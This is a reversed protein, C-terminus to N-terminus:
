DGRPRALSSAQQLSTRYWEVTARLGQEFSVLPEYGLLRRALTIDALSERVDGPRPAAYGPAGKQGFIKDLLAITQNLTSSEGTGVNIVRGAAQPAKLARLVADVVNAVHTFDRSQEGDGFITPSTGELYATIFRSLVGSYPSAPDQRPGFINFFRLPVAELGFLRTFVQCYYEGALKTVAYPSLPCPEQSETRPMEPRDGYVAASSAFVLRKARADRAALLVNLTGGLNVENTLAPDELSRAVSSLAALHIVYDVGGCAEHLKDLDRIDTEYWSIRGRVAELNELKGTSLNDVVRVEHEAEVLKEVIHSGIFGAGGTVLYSAM